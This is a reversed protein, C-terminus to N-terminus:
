KSPLIELTITSINSTEEADSAYFTFLDEGFYNLNPTYTAVVM